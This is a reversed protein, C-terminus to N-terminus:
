DKNVKFISLIRGISYLIFNFFLAGILDTRNNAIIYDCRALIKKIFMMKKGDSSSLSNNMLRYKVLAEEIKYAHCDNESLVNLWLALDEVCKFSDTENFRLNKLLEKKLLVTSTSVQNIFFLNRFELEGYKIFLQTYIKKTIENSDSDIHSVNTCIFNYKQLLDVQIKLKEPEWVDDADLFAVYEGSARDIGLNRPKAPGGSNEPCEIIILSNFYHSYKKVIKLSNDISCNDIIIVEFMNYTQIKLSNLTEQIYEEANYMPIVISILPMKNM